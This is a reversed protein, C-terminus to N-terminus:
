NEKVKAQGTMMSWLGYAGLSISLVTVVLPPANFNQVGYISGVVNEYITLLSWFIAIVGHSAVPSIKMVRQMLVNLGSTLWSLGLVTTMHCAPGMADSDIGSFVESVVTAPSFALKMGVLCFYIGWYITYNQEFAARDIREHLSLNDGRSFYKVFEKEDIGDDHNADFKSFVSDTVIISIEPPINLMVLAKAYEDRSITGDGNIDLQRFVESATKPAM